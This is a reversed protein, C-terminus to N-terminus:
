CRLMTGTSTPLSIRLPLPPLFRPLSTLYTSLFLFPFSFPFPPLTSVSHTSLWLSRFANWHFVLGRIDAHADTAFVIFRTFM